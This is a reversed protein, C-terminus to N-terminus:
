GVEIVYQLTVDFQEVISNRKILSQSFQKKEIEEKERTVVALLPPLGIRERIVAYMLTSAVM